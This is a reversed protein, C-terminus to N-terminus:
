NRGDNTSFHAADFRAPTVSSFNGDLTDLDIHTLLLDSNSNSSLVQVGLVIDTVDIGEYTSTTDGAYRALREHNWALVGLDSISAAAQWKNDDGILLASIAM